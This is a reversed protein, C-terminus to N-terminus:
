LFSKPHTSHSYIPCFQVIIPLISAAILLVDSSVLVYLPVYAVAFRINGEDLLKLVPKVLVLRNKLGKLGSNFGM